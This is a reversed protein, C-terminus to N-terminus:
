YMDFEDSDSSTRESEYHLNYMREGSKKLETEQDIKNLLDLEKLENERELNDDIIADDDDVTPTDDDDVAAAVTATTFQKSLSYNLTDNDVPADLKNEQQQQKSGDNNCNIDDDDCKIMADRPTILTDSHDHEDNHPTIVPTIVVPDDNHRIDHATVEIRDNTIVVDGSKGSTTQQNLLKLEDSIMDHSKTLDKKEPLILELDINTVVDDKQTQPIVTGQETNSPPDKILIDRILQNEIHSKHKKHHKHQKKKHPDVPVMKKQDKDIIMECGLFLYTYNKSSIRAVFEDLLTDSSLPALQACLKVAASEFQNINFDVSPNFLHVYLAYALIDRELMLIRRNLICAVIKDLKGYLSDIFYFEYNCLQLFKKIIEKEDDEYVDLKNDLSKTDGLIVIKERIRDGGGEIEKSLQRYKVQRKYLIKKIHIIHNDIKGFIEVDGKRFWNM